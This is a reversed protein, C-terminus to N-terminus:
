FPPEGYEDLEVGKYSMDVEYVEDEVPTDTFDKQIIGMDSLHLSLQLPLQNEM